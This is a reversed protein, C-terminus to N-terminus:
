KSRTMNWKYVNMFFPLKLVFNKNLKKLQPCFFKELQCITCLRYELKNKGLIVSFFMKPQM